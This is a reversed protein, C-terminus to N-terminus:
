RLAESLNIDVMIEGSIHELADAVVELPLSAPVFIQVDARFLKQGTWAEHELGTELSEINVGMEALVSTVERLIGQRDQGVLSVSFRSGEPPHPEPTVEVLTVTLDDPLCRLAQELAPLGGAPLEVLVSGVYHGGLRALQSDGWNGGTEAVVDALAQTLGPRDRGIVTLIASVHM